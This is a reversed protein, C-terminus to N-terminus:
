LRVVREGEWKAKERAEILELQTAQQAAVAKARAEELADARVTQSVKGRRAEEM